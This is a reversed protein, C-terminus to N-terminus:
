VHYAISARQKEDKAQKSVNNKRENTLNVASESRTEEFKYNNNRRQNLQKKPPSSNMRMKELNQLIPKVGQVIAYIFAILQALGIVLM